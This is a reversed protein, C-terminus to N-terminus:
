LTNPKEGDLDSHIHIEPAYCAVNSCGEYNRVGDQMSYEASCGHCKYWRLTPVGERKRRRVEEMVANSYGLDM